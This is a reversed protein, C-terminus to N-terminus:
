SQMLPSRDRVADRATLVLVPIWNCGSQLDALLDAAATRLGSGSDRRRSTVALADRAVAGGPVFRVPRSLADHLIEAIRVEDEIVLVRM